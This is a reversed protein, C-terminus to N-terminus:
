LRSPRPVPPAPLAPKPKTATMTILDGRTDTAVIEWGLAMLVRKAQNVAIDQLEEPRIDPM